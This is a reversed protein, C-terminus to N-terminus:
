SGLITNDGKTNTKEAIFLEKVNLSEPSKQPQMTALNDAGFFAAYSRIGELL